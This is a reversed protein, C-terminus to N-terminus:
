HIFCTIVKLREKDYDSGVFSRLHSENLSELPLFNFPASILDHISVHVCKTMMLPLFIGREADIM